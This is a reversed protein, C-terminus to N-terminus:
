SVNKAVNGRFQSKLFPFDDQYSKMYSTDFFQRIHLIATTGRGPNTKVSDFVLICSSKLPEGADPRKMDRRTAEGEVREGGNVKISGNLKPYCAIALFWHERVNCPFVVFDKDFINV